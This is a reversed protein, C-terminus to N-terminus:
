TRKKAREWNQYFHALHTLAATGNGQLAQRIHSIDAQESILEPLPRSWTQDGMVLAGVIHREGVVLRVRNVQDTESVITARPLLRWAESDGRAITILDDDKGKGVAGIITIKLGALQTVNFSIGKIYALRAGAMNAGAVRGQALATSWLVDMTARGAHPDHVQAVDGAAFVNPHSTQLFANVLVGRDVALGAQRALEARPRVGIAAALIQCPVIAGAQTEVATVHGRKGIAQKVQTQPHLVIGEQRLREVIVNSETEDLVDAWYRPSRMFYHVNMRRARLGEALELATIGGGVVVATKGRGALKLIQRADDLNDLKVVGALNAGPFTPRVATAGLALLLRDYQVRKGGALIVEQQQVLLQQVCATIRQVSLAKLDQSSRVYLLKEPIDGRLLYALGPRSYFPHAEESIMTIAAQADGRRLAEAASLGAIGSGIILYRLPM